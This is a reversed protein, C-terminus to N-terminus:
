IYVQRTDETVIDTDVRQQLEVAHQYKELIANKRVPDKPAVRDLSTKTLQAYSLEPTYSVRRCPVPCQCPLDANLFDTLVPFIVNSNTLQM